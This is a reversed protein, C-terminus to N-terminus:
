KGGPKAASKATKRQAAIEEPDLYRYTKAKAEMSLLGDKVNEIKLDHLLVIRPL